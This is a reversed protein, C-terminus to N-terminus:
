RVRVARALFRSQNMTVLARQQLPSQQHEFQTLECRTANAFLLMTGDFIDNHHDPHM